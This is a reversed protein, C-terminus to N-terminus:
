SMAPYLAKMKPLSVPDCRAAQLFSAVRMQWKLAEDAGYLIM